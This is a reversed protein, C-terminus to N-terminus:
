LRVRAMALADVYQGARFAYARLYGEREFGLGEYLAIAPTNDAFVTLELRRLALWNDALDLIAALLAKGIGRGAYADHVSIGIDGAHARREARVRVSACGVLKGGVIAVIHRAGDTPSELRSKWDAARPHPVGLTNAYALPQARLEIFGALDEPELARLTIPEPPKAM